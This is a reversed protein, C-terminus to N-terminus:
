KAEVRSRKKVALILARKGRRWSSTLRVKTRKRALKKLRYRERNLRRLCERCASRRNSKARRVAWFDDIKLIRQCKPCYKSGEPLTPKREIVTYPEPLRFFIDAINVATVTRSSRHGWARIGTRRAWYGASGCGCKRGAAPGYQYGRQPVRRANDLVLRWWM